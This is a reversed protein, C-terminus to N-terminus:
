MVYIYRSIKDNFSWINEELIVINARIMFITFLQTQKCWSIIVADLTPNIEWHRLINITLAPTDPARTRARLQRIHSNLWYHGSSWHLSRSWRSWEGDRSWLSWRRMEASNWLCVWGSICRLYFTSWDINRLLRTNACAHQENHDHNRWNRRLM